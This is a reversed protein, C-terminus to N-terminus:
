RRKCSRIVAEAGGERILSILVKRYGEVAEAGAEQYARAIREKHPGALEQALKAGAYTVHLQRQRRDRMGKQQVVFGHEMLHTLVRALSQKTIGLIELLESITIGSNRWIFHLARHHARGVGHKALLEDREASINRHAHFLLEFGQTVEEDRLFPSSNDSKKDSM